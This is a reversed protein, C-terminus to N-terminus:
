EKTLRHLGTHAVPSSLLNEIPNNAILQFVGDVAKEYKEVDNISHALSPKFQRFGLFGKNLMEITFVTMMSQNKENSFSFAALTPLGSVNVSIRHKKAMTKWVSKVDNGINIIHDAVNESIYKKITALAAVPGIRETWNTSSIFTSQASSMITEVGIISAMAYGNAMSKAFVAMDPNIGYKLHIGGACMRFGSTIEDFILVAGIERAFEKLSILYDKPADEGRAPEVIIAAIEKEIGNAKLKLEDIDNFHFPIATDKLGRPVGAPDLGPMLQGDLADTEGLNSALYWDSWGHYGSFLVKDRKTHARAIRIAIACAEGGSRTYRVMDAWPHLEILLEALEVEEPCNLSSASGNKIAEIVANDVDDDAYGLINAGIGMISMDIFKNNDLDWVNCGKAKSYFAPWVEPAFMEPRKSLLQTGGPILKKAKKYLLQGSGKKM